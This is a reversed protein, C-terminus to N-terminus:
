VSCEGEGRVVQFLEEKGWDMYMQIDKHIPGVEKFEDLLSDFSKAGVRDVYAVFEEGENRNAVYHDVIKKVAEPARKSPVRAIRTGFKGGGTNYNGGGLFVDFCPITAGNASFSSGQLGIAALHHQGCGNPCGSAKVHIKQVLPDDDYGWTEVAERIAYGVGQSSTIGMKCSDTGPCAVTDAFLGADPAGFGIEKLEAHLAPLGEARVWRLVLNQNQQTRANGGSFRRMLAGLGRFQEPSLNGMPITITVAVYGPQKQQVVNTKVWRDFDPGPKHGNPAEGPTPGEPALQMLTPMDLPEWAWPEGLEEDVQRRFEDIGLKQVLFKVRAKNMNKRLFNPLGGEKDFVKLCAEAVRLLRKTQEASLGAPLRIDVDFRRPTAKNDYVVDVRIERLEWHKTRAYTRITTAICAALAAPLLEHPAPGTDSGGLREPEDTVLRHRGDILVDHRLTDGHSSASATLSM